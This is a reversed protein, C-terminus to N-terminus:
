SDLNLLKFYSLLIKEKKKIAFQEAGYASGFYFGTFFLGGFLTGISYNNQYTMITIYLFLSEVVFTAVATEPLGIYLYGLGPFIINLSKAVKPNKFTNQEFEKIIRINKNVKKELKKDSINKLILKASDLKMLAFYNSSKIIQLTDFKSGSFNNSYENILSNSKRYQNMMQYAHSIKLVSNLYNNKVDLISQHVKISEIFYGKKFYCEAIREQNSIFMANKPYLLNAREYEIIAFDFQNKKYFEDAVKIINESEDIGGGYIVPMMIFFSIIIKIQNM